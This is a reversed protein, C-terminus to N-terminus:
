EFQEVVTTTEAIEQRTAEESNRECKASVHGDRRKSDKGDREDRAHRWQM